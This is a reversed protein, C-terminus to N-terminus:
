EFRAAHGSCLSLHKPIWVSDRGGTTRIRQEFVLAVTYSPFVGAECFYTAVTNRVSLGRRPGSSAFAQVGRSPDQSSLLASGETFMRQQCPESAADLFPAVSLGM